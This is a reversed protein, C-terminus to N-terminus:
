FILQLIISMVPNRSMIINKNGYGIKQIYSQLNSKGLQRDLTQFYWNVSFTMASQLTQDSNWAEFPYEEKNWTIFSKEPTIIGEELAFLSEYIKYTSNPAVRTTAQEMDYINWYDANSNYLVFSGEYKEFYASLDIQSIKEDPTNWKYLNAEAAYTSLIPTIGLLLVTIISFVTIGRIQNWFTPKQYSAINLIRRQMQKMSGGLGAAFPFPTLSIKEAYNILTNGYDEYDEEDIMKLVSTDCAVERDNRMEKMALRVVPNFWYVIGALNM